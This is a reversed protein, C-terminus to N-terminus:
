DGKRLPNFKFTMSKLTEFDLKSDMEEPVVEQIQKNKVSKLVSKMFSPVFYIIEFVIAALVAVFIISAFLLFTDDITLIDFKRIGELKLLENIDLLLEENM